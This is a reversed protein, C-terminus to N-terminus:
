VLVGIDAFRHYISGYYTHCFNNSFVSGGRVKPVVGSKAINFFGLIESVIISVAMTHIVFITSLLIQRLIFSGGVGM